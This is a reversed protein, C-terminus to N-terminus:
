LMSFIRSVLSDRVVESKYFARFIRSGACLHLTFLTDLLPSGNRNVINRAAISRLHRLRRQQSLLDVHLARSSPVPVGTNSLNVAAVSVVADRGTTSSM